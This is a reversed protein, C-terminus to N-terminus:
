ARHWHRAWDRLEAMVPELSHGKDTLDYSVRVRNGPQVERQVLGAKELEKLRCSLLRDSMGPVAERLEGFHLPGDTLAYLIAGAWRRGILEVAGHYHRCVQRPKAAGRSPGVGYQARVEV